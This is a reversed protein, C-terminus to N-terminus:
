LRDARISAVSRAFRFRISRECFSPASAPMEAFAMQIKRFRYTPQALFPAYFTQEAFATSL